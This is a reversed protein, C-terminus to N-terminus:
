SSRFSKGLGSAILRSRACYPAAATARSLLQWYVWRLKFCSKRAQGFSREPAQDLSLQCREAWTRRSKIARFSLM